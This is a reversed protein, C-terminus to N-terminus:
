CFNVLYCPAYVSFNHACYIAVFVIISAIICVDMIAITAIIAISIVAVTAIVIRFNKWCSVYNAFRRATKM